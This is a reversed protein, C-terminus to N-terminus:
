KIMVFKLSGKTDESSIKLTVFQTNALTNPSVFINTANVIKNFFQEDDKSTSEDKRLFGLGIQYNFGKTVGASTSKIDFNGSFKIGKFKGTFDGSKFNVVIHGKSKANKINLLDETEINILNYQDVPMTIMPTANKKCAFNLVVAFIILLIKKM